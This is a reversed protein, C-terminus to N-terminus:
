KELSGWQDAIADAIGQFTKSRDRKRTKKDANSCWEPIWKGSSQYQLKGYGDRTPRSGNCAPCDEGIPFTRGCACSTIKELMNTPKLEPLNHLAFGTKKQIPEGFWAPHVYQVPRIYKFIVSLPNELAIRPSYVKALEWLETTWKIAAIREHHKPKGKGYHRNGCLAIATCDPHLVILDWGGLKIAEMVDMQLHFEPNRGRTPQLDCSWAEHGRDLFAQCVTQSEECGILVRM